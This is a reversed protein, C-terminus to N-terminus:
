LSLVKQCIATGGKGAYFINHVLLKYGRCGAGFTTRVRVQFNKQLYVEIELYPGSYYQSINKKGTSIGLLESNDNLPLIWKRNCIKASRSRCIMILCKKTMNKRKFVGATYDM